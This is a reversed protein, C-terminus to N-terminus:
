TRVYAAYNHICHMSGGIFPDESFLFRDVLVAMLIGFGLTSKGM